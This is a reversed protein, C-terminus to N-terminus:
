KKAPKIHIPKERAWALKETLFIELLELSEKQDPCYGKKNKVRDLINTKLRTDKQLLLQEAEDQERVSQLIHEAKKNRCPDDALYTLLPSDPNYIQDNPLHHRYFPILAEDRELVLNSLILKHLNLRPEKLAGHDILHQAM